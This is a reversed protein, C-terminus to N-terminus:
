KPCNEPDRTFIGSIFYGFEPEKEDPRSSGHFNAFLFATTLGFLVIVGMIVAFMPVFRRKAPKKTKPAISGAASSKPHEQPSKAGVAPTTAM